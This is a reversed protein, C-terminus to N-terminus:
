RKGSEDNGNPDPPKPREDFQELLRLIEEPVAEALVPDYLGHLQRNLWREFGRESTPDEAPPGGGGHVDDAKKQSM